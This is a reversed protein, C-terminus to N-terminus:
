SKEKKIQWWKEIKNIRKLLKNKKNFIKFIM